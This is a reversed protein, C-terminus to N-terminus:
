STRAGPPAKADDGAGIDPGPDAPRRGQFVLTGASRRFPELIRHQEDAREILRDFDVDPLREGLGALDRLNAWLIKKGEIGIALVDLEIFRSLPSYGSLQGNLKFRALREGVAAAAPKVASPALGLRRMMSRFAEIDEDIATAVQALARGLETGRNSREARRALERWGVGLALHDNMYIRLHRDSV